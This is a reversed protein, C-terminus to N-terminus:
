DTQFIFYFYIKGTTSCIRFPTEDCNFIREPNELIDLFGDEIACQLILNFWFRIGKETVAARALSHHEAAKEVLEPWRKLFGYFWTKGPVLTPFPNPISEASLLKKVIIQTNEKKLPFGRRCRKKIHEFLMKEFMISFGADKALRDLV